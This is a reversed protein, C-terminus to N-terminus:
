QPLHAPAADAYGEGDLAEMFAVLDDADRESLPFRFIAEDLGPNPTGGRAYHFMVERLTAMSGDHMYPAHRSCDRLTPTKFAGLDRPDHTVEYRGRDAFGELAPRGPGPDKWGVGLNHFRGDTFNQGLHCQNCRGYSFFIALGRRASPTLAAEDGADFRDFASNGSLRTAEYAALADVVRDLTIREDGFAEAFYRRYGGIRSVTAVVEDHSPRGMEVPNVMPGKAQEQLSAARGDWFYRPYVPFAGNVFSPSKRTGTKGAIGTSHPTTESFAHEPKHCTACSVTGDASLRPDYFLWRGLRVKEPTVTVQGAKWDVEIGLPAAPLPRLPNDREWAPAAGARAPDPAGTSRCAALALAALAALRAAHTRSPLM